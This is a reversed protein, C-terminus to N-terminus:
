REKPIIDKLRGGTVSDTVVRMNNKIKDFKEETLAGGEFLANSDAATDNELKTRSTVGGIEGGPKKHVECKGGWHARVAADDFLCSEPLGFRENQLRQAMEFTPISSPFNM